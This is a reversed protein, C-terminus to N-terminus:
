RASSTAQPSQNTQGVVSRVAVILDVIAKKYEKLAEIVEKMDSRFDKLQEKPDDGSCSFKGAVSSAHEVAKDVAAAKASIDGVLEQYNEVSLNKTVIKSSYYEQVRSSIADFRKQINEARRALTESRRNIADQRTQCAKLKAGELRLGGKASETAEREHEQENESQSFAPVFATFILVFAVFFSILLLIPKVSKVRALMSIVYITYRYM